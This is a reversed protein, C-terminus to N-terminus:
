LAREFVPLICDKGSRGLLNMHYVTEPMVGHDPLLQACMVSGAREPLGSGSLEQEVFAAYEEADEEWGHWLCLGILRIRLGGACEQPCGDSAGGKKWDYPSTEERLRKLLLPLVEESEATVAATVPSEETEEYIFPM